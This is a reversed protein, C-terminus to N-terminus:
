LIFLTSLLSKASQFCKIFEEKTLSDVVYQEEDIRHFHVNAIHSIKDYPLEIYENEYEIVLIDSKPLFQEGNPYLVIIDKVAGTEKYKVQMVHPMTYKNQDFFQTKCIKEVLSNYYAQVSSKDLSAHIKPGIFYTMYCCDIAVIQGKQGINDLLLPVGLLKEKDIWEENYHTKFMKLGMSTESDEPIIDSHTMISITEAINLALRFDTESSLVNIGVVYEANSYYLIVGRTSEHPIFVKCINSDIPESLEDPESLEVNQFALNSMLEKYTLQKNTKIRHYFSM